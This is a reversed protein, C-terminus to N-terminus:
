VAAAKNFAFDCFNELQTMLSHMAPLVRRSGSSQQIAKSLLEAAQPNLNMTIKGLFETYTFSALNSDPCPEKAERGELFIAMQTLVDNDLGSRRIASAVLEAMEENMIVQAVGYFSALNFCPPFSHM